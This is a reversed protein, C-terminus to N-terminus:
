LKTTPDLAGRMVESFFILGASKSATFVAKHFDIDAAHLAESSESIDMVELAQLMGEKADPDENQAAEIAAQRELAIRVSRLSQLNIGSSVMGLFLSEQVVEPNLGKTFTGVGKRRELIGISELSSLRDRLATRSVGLDMAQARESPLKVGQGMETIQQVIMGLLEDGFPYRQTDEVVM